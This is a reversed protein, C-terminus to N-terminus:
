SHKGREASGATESISGSLLTTSNDDKYLTQLAGNNAKRNFANRWVQAVMGWPTTARGAADSIDVPKIELWVQKANTNTASIKVVLSTCNMQAADIDLTVVGTTGIEAVTLGTVAFAAGDVSATAALGTLGGTIAALTTIDLIVDSVRFAQNKIPIATADAAAM